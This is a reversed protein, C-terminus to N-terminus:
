NMSIQISNSPLFFDIRVDLKHGNAEFVLEDSFIYDEITAPHEADYHYIYVTYELLDCYVDFSVVLKSQACHNRDALVSLSNIQSCLEVGRVLIAAETM